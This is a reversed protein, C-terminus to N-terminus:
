PQPHDSGRSEDKLVRPYHRARIGSRRRKNITSSGSDTEPRVMADGRIDALVCLVRHTQVPSLPCPVSTHRRAGLQHDIYPPEPPLFWLLLMDRSTKSVLFFIGSIGPGRLLHQSDTAREKPEHRQHPEPHGRRTPLSRWTSRFGEGTQMANERNIPPGLSEFVALEDPQVANNFDPFPRFEYSM